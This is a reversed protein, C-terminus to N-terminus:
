RSTRGKLTDYLARIGQAEGGVPAWPKEGPVWGYIDFHVWSKAQEVFRSLFLAATISGGFGGTSIHNVDAVKSGLMSQYPQWLPMRWLPDHTQAASIDLTAALKDDDTYFPSVEPGMAVRAAGTLTAMDVMLEPKEEDGLALCDGLVLRGEADTNGIEVTIGKRTQLIDGPRFANGSIANEVAGVILRLRIPLKADMIMHALGMVNAAGGMDKKMLAMSSGPKINLGGTDFTVGKGVLTIKPHSPKGWTMDLVRPAESSARGVAHVMPFNQKLLNDGKIVRVKASHIKGLQRFAAELADPGMDSAPINILDRTLFLGESIRMADADVKGSLSPTKHKRDRYKDFSYGGMAWALQDNAPNERDGAFQYKGSPLSRALKAHAWQENFHSGEGCGFLVMALKGDDAPILCTQGSKGSFGTTKAWAINAKDLQASNKSFQKKSLLHIPVAASSTRSFHRKPDTILHM